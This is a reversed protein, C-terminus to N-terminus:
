SLKKIYIDVQLMEIKFWEVCDYGFQKNYDDKELNINDYDPKKQQAPVKQM